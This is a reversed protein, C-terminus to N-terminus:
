SEVNWPPKVREAPIPDQIALPEAAGPCVARIENGFRVQYKSWTYHVSDGEFGTLDNPPSQFARM